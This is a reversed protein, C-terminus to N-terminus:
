KLWFHLDLIHLSQLDWQSFIVNISHLIYAVSINSIIIYIIGYILICIVHQLCQLACIKLM